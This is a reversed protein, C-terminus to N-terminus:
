FFFQVLLFFFGLVHPDVLLVALNAKRSQAKWQPSHYPGHDGQGVLKSNDKSKIWAM